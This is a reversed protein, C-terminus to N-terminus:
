RKQEPDRLLLDLRRRRREPGWGLSQFAAAFILGERWPSSRDLRTYGTSFM